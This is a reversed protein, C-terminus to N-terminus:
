KEECAETRAKVMKSLELTHGFNTLDIEFGSTLSARLEWESEDVPVFPETALSGHCQIGHDFRRSSRCLSPSFELPTAHAISSEAYQKFVMGAM